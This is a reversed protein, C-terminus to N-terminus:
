KNHQFLTFYFIESISIEACKNQMPKNLVSLVIQGLELCHLDYKIACKKDVTTDASSIKKNRSNYIFM